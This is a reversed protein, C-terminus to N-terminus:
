SEGGVRLSRRWRSILLPWLAVSGPFILLRFGRPAGRAASDVREVGRCVFAAGVITGVAAYLAVGLLILEAMQMGQSVNAIAACNARSRQPANPTAKSDSLALAKTVGPQTKSAFHKTRNRRRTM